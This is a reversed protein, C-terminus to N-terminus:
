RAVILVTGLLVRCVCVGGLQVAPDLLQFMLCSDM